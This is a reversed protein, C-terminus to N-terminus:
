AVEQGGSSIGQECCLPIDSEFTNPDLESPTHIYGMPAQSHCFDPTFWAKSITRKQLHEGGAAWLLLATNCFLGQPVFATQNWTRAEISINCIVGELLSSQSKFM